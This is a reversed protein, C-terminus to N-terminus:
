QLLCGLMLTSWVQFLFVLKNIVHRFYESQTRIRIRIRRKRKVNAWKSNMMRCLKLNIRFKTVAIFLWADSYMLSKHSFMFNFMFLLVWEVNKDKDKDKKKKKKKPKESTDMESTEDQAKHENSSFITNGLCIWIVFIKSDSIFM